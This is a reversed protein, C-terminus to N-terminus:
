FKQRLYVEHTKGSPQRNIINREELSKLMLSLSSKSIGTRYRLTSQLIGSQEHVAKLIKQEDESFGSLFAKFEDKEKAEKLASSVKEQHEILVDQTRDFFKLYLGLFILAVSLSWGVIYLSYDRDEHLCTGDDLYCTNNESIFSKIYRDERLKVLYVLGAFVLGVVILITGVQKQNM